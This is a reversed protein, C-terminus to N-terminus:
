CPGTKRVQCAGLAKLAMAIESAGASDTPVSMMLVCKDSKYAGAQILLTGLAPNFNIRSIDRYAIPVRKESGMCLREEVYPANAWDAGIRQAIIKKASAEPLMMQTNLDVQPASACGTLALVGLTLFLSVRM